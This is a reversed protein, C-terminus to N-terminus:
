RRRAAGVGPRPRSAGTLRRRALSASPLWVVRVGNDILRKVHPTSRTSPRRSPSASPASATPRIRAVRICCDNYAEILELAYGPPQRHDVQVHRPLQRCRFFFSVAYLGISGPFMMQRRVGTSDLVELRRHSTSRAPHEPSSPTGCRTARHDRHQRRRRIAPDADELGRLRRRLRKVVSGFQEDWHNVPTYEHSDADLMTGAFPRLAEPVAEPLFTTTM